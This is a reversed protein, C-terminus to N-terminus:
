IFRSVWTTIAATIGCLFAGWAWDMFAIGVPWDRFLALCTFDYVGYIIAGMLAGYLLAWLVSGNALPLVFVVLALPLLIYVIATAWWIPQLQGGEMRLWPAYEKFYLSKAIVGLWLMDLILLVVLAIFFLKTFYM